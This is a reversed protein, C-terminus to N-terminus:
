KLLSEIKNYLEEGRLNKAIIKGEKNLLVTHPIGTINYLPVVISSWYKVDSVQIWSLNNTRITKTWLQKSKDLSVGLIELGKKNFDAYLKQINPMEKMCPNCWAAWFDILVYKGKFSSLSVNVGNTDPLTFDPAISGIRTKKSAEIQAHFNLVYFNQPYKKLLLSDAQSFLEINEDIKLTETIFLVALSAKNKQVFNILATNLNQNIKEYSTSYVNLLSDYKTNGLNIYSLNSISDLKIKTSTILKQNAIIQSTQESGTVVLKNLFDSEDISIVVNEGPQLIFMIFNNKDFQLKYFDTTILELKYTFKGDKDISITAVQNLEKGVQFLTASTYSNNKLLGKINVENKLQSFVSSYTM